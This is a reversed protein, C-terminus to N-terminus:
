PKASSTQSENICECGYLVHLDRLFSQIYLNLTKLRIESNALICYRVEKLVVDKSTPSAIMSKSFTKNIVHGLPRIQPRPTLPTSVHSSPAPSPPTLTRSPSAARTNSPSNSPQDAACSQASYTSPHNATRSSDTFHVRTIRKKSPM